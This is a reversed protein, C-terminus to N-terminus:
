TALEPYPVPEGPTGKWELMSLNSNPTYSLQQISHLESGSVKTELVSITRLVFGELKEEGLLDITFGGFKKVGSTPWYQYSAEQPCALISFQHLLM